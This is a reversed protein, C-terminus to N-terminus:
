PITGIDAATAPITLTAGSSYPPNIRQPDLTVNARQSDSCTCSSVSASFDDGTTGHHYLNCAASPQSGNSLSTMISFGQAGAATAM